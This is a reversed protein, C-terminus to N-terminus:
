QKAGWNFSHRMKYFRKNKTNVGNEYLFWRYKNKLSTKKILSSVVNTHYPLFWADLIPANTWADGEFEFDALFNGTVLHSVSYKRRGNNRDAEPTLHIFVNNLKKVFDIKMKGVNKVSIFTNNM